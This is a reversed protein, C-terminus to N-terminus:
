FIVSMAGFFSKKPTISVGRVRYWGVIGTGDYTGSQLSLVFPPWQVYREEKPLYRLTFQSHLWEQDPYTELLFLFRWLATTSPEQAATSNHEGSTRKQAVISEQHVLDRFDAVGRGKQQSQRLFLLAAGDVGARHLIDVISHFGAPLKGEKWQLLHERVGDADLDSVAKQWAGESLQKYLSDETRDWQDVRKASVLTLTILLGYNRPM